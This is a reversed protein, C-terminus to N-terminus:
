GNSKFDSLTKNIWGGGFIHNKDSYSYFVAAQGPSVGYQTQKLTIRTTKKDFNIKIKAPVLNGTNRLKVFVDVHKKTNSTIWNCNTIEIEKCGLYEKPGVIVDNNNSDIKIVYLISDKESIGKRGGIKLGKRQGITFDIIGNHKGLFKGDVHIINGSKIANPNLKRVLDSYKGEPVFCIDQSDPKDFVRLNHKKALFRTREKDIEGLPFRLFKLQDITTSFLFYSQDKTKDDAKYLQPLGGIKKRKIYHGTALVESGIKKAFNLMDVFKVTQNCKICPIPTEGKIYAETFDKVVNENFRNTYNLVHHAIGLKDCVNKADSIDVGACCTKRNNVMTKHEYLHMSLGIVHYGCEHLLAATVSSDVGGSMAVAVTHDSPKGPLDMQKIIDNNISM